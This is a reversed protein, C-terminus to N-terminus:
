IKDLQNIILRLDAILLWSISHEAKREFDICLRRMNRLWAFTREVIWRKEQVVFGRVGEERKVVELEINLKECAEKLGDTKDYIGDAKIKKLRTCRKLDEVLDVAGIDDRINAAHSRAVLIHGTVDVIIHRKRGKIKKNGDYGVSNVDAMETTKVSQSDIIGLSPQPERGIKIRHEEFLQQQVRAILGSETWLSYYYYVLRYDPYDNPLSRWKCGNSLIYIIANWILRLPYKRKRTNEIYKELILWQSDSLDTAYYQM